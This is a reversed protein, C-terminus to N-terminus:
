PRRAHRELVERCQREAKALMEPVTLGMRDAQEQYSARLLVKGNPLPIWPPLDDDDPSSNTM